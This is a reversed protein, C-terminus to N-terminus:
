HVLVTLTDPSSPSSTTPDDDYDDYDAQGSSSISRGLEMSNPRWSEADLRQWGSQTYRVGNAPPRGVKCEM